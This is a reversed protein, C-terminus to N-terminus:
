RNLFEAVQQIAEDGEPIWDAYYHWVHFMDDWVELRTDVGYGEAATALRTSDDLLIEATGVQILLPPLGSLDAFLPSAEPLKPDAGALYWDASNSAGDSRLLVEEDARSTYSEGSCTLDTWPSLLVAAGPLAHGTDRLRLLTALTLGGGASDGGVVVDEPRVGQKTLWVYAKVADDVGAPFPDEPALRYDIMLARVGAARAVNAVMHHHSAISGICYGGGHYYLLTRGERANEPVLSEGPTGEVDVRTCTVAEHVPSIAVRRRWGRGRFM